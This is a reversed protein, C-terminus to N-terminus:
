FYYKLWIEFSGSTVFNWQLSLPQKYYTQYHSIDQHETRQGYYWNIDTIESTGSSERIYRSIRIANTELSISFPKDWAKFCLNLGMNITATIGRNYSTDNHTNIFTDSAPPEDYRYFNSTQEGKEIYGSPTLKVFPAITKQIIFYKYINIGLSFYYSRYKEEGFSTYNITDATQISDDTTTINVGSQSNISHLNNYSISGELGLAFSKTPYYTIAYNTPLWSTRTIVWLHSGTSYEGDIVSTHTEAFFNHSSQGINDLRIGMSWKQAFEELNAIALTQIILLIFM